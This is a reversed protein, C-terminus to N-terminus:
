SWNLLHFPLNFSEVEGAMRRRADTFAGQDHSFLVTTVHGRDDVGAHLDPAPSSDKVSGPALFSPAGNLQVKAM